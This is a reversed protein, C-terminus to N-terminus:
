ERALEIIFQDFNVTDIFDDPKFITIHFLNFDHVHKDLLIPTQIGLSQSVDKLMSFFSTKSEDVETYSTRVVRERTVIKGWIKIM